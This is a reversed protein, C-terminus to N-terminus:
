KLINKSGLLAIIVNRTEDPKIISTIMGYSAAKRENIMNTYYEEDLKVNNMIKKQLIDKAGNLGMPAIESNEWAFVYNAGLGISNLAIYAGGYAKRMIVTIKLQQCQVYANILNAGLNLIGKEEEGVGPIFGPTDVFTIIPIKFKSCFRVWYDCKKTAKADMCGCLTNPQNCIIGVSIGNIRALGIILNEAYEEYFELFSNEDVIQLIIRKADYPKRKNQPIFKLNNKKNKVKSFVKKNYIVYFIKKIVSICDDTTSYGFHAVGSEKGHIKWGGLEEDTVCFGLEKKIINSGTLFMRAKDKNFIVIDALAANYAAGGACVDDVIAIQLKKHISQLRFIRSYGDLSRVGEEIKAGGGCCFFLFPSDEKIALELVKCIQDAQKEGITGGCIRNNQVLFFIKIEGIKGFGTCINSSLSTYFDDVEKKKTMNEYLYVISNLDFLSEIINDM